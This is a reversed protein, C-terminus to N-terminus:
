WATATAVFVAETLTFIKIQFYSPQPPVAKTTSFSTENIIKIWQESKCDWIQVWNRASAKCQRGAEMEETGQRKEIKSKMGAMRKFRHVMLDHVALLLYCISDLWSLSDVVAFNNAYGCLISDIYTKYKASDCALSLIGSAIAIAAAAADCCGFHSCAFRANLM